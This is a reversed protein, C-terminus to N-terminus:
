WGVAIVYSGPAQFRAEIVDGLNCSLLEWTDDDEACFFLGIARNLTSWVKFTVDYVERECDVAGAEMVTLRGASFKVDEPIVGDSNEVAEDLAEATPKCSWDSTVTAGPTTMVVNILHNPDANASVCCGALLAAALALVLVKKM